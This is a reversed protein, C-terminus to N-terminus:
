ASVLESWIVDYVKQAAKFATTALSLLALAYVAPDAGPDPLYSGYGGSVAFYGTLGVAVGFVVYKKSQNSLNIDFYALAQNIIFGLLVSACTVISWNIVIEDM